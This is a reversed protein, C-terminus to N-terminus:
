KNEQISLIKRCVDVLETKEDDTIDRKNCCLSVYYKNGDITIEHVDGGINPREKLPGFILTGDKLKIALNLNRAVWGRDASDSLGGALILAEQLRSTSSLEYVGPKIVAGSVDVFIKSSPSAENSSEFTISNEENKQLVALLLGILILLIGIGALVAPLWNSKVLLWSILLKERFM